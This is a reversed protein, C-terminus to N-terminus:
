RGADRQGDYQITTESHLAARRANARVGRGATAPDLRAHPGCESSRRGPTVPESGGTDRASPSRCRTIEAGAARSPSPVTRATQAAPRVTSPAATGGSCARSSPCRRGSRATRACRHGTGDMRDAEHSGPRRRPANSRAWRAARRHCPPPAGERHSRVGAFVATPATRGAGHRAPSRESTARRM